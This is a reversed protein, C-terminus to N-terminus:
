ASMSRFGEPAIIRFRPSNGGRGPQMTRGMTRFEYRDISCAASDPFTRVVKGAVFLQMGCNEDLLVPWRILLEVRAGKRAWGSMHFAVGISSIDVTRGLGASVVRNNEYVKFRLEAAITFRQKSRRNHNPVIGFDEDEM